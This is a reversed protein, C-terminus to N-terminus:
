VYIFAGGGYTSYCFNGKEEALAVLGWSTGNFKYLSGPGSFCVTYSEFIPGDDDVTRIYFAHHPKGNGPLPDTRAFGPVGNTVIGRGSFNSPFSVSINGLGRISITDGDKGELRKDVYGAMATSTSTGILAAIAVMLVGFMLVSYFKNKNM